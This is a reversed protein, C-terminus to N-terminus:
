PTEDTFEVRWTADDGLWCRLEVEYSAGPGLSLLVEEDALGETARDVMLEGDPDYLRLDLDGGDPRLEIGLVRPADVAFRFRDLDTGDWSGDGGCGDMAGGLMWPLTDLVGLDQAAEDNPELEEQDPPPPPEPPTAEPTPAPEGGEDGEGDDGPPCAAVWAAAFALASLRATAAAVGDGLGTDVEM